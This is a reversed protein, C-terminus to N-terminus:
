SEELTENQYTEAGDLIAEVQNETLRAGHLFAGKRTDDRLPSVKKPYPKVFRILSKFSLALRWKNEKCYTEEEPTMEWLMEVKDIIGYGVISDVKVKKMFLIVTGPLYNRRMGTYYKQIEFIQNEWEETNIRLIYGYKEIEPM